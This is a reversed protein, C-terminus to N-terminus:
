GLRYLKAVTASSFVLRFVGIANAASVTLTAGGTVVPTAATIGAGVVVTVTNAGGTNDVYFDFTTGRVAGIAAGINTATDLQLNVGAASTSTMYGKIFDAAAVTASVNVAFTTHNHILNQKVQIGAGTTQEQISNTFIGATNFGAVLAGEVAVGLQTDSVGYLGNNTDAGIRLALASVTGDDLSLYDTVFTTATLTTITASDAFLTKTCCTDKALVELFWAELDLKGKLPKYTYTGSNLYIQKM